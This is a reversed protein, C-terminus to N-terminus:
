INYIARLKGGCQGRGRLRKNCHGDEPPRARCPDVSNGHLTSTMRTWGSINESQNSSVLIHEGEAM